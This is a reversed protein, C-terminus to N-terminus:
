FRVGTLGPGKDDINLCVFFTRQVIQMDLYDVTWIHKWGYDHLTNMLSDKTQWWSTKNEYSALLSSRKREDDSLNTVEGYDVGTEGNKEYPENRIYSYRTPVGKPNAFHTDLILPKGQCRALLKHQMDQDLHYYVGLCSIADYLNADWDDSNLDAEIFDVGPPLDPKRESRVDLATALWGMEHAMRTFNCHGAGLDIIRGKFGITLEIFKLAHEFIPQRLAHYHVRPKPISVDM